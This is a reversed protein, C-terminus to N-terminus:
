GLSPSPEFTEVGPDSGSQISAMRPYRLGTLGLRIRQGPKAPVGEAEVLEGAAAGIALASGFGDGPDAPLSRVDSRYSPPTRSPGESRDPASGHDVPEGEIAADKAFTNM